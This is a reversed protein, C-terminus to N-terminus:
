FLYSLLGNRHLEYEPSSYKWVYKKLGNYINGKSAVATVRNPGTDENLIRSSFVEGSEGRNALKLYSEAISEFGKVVGTLADNWSVATSQPSTLDSSPGGEALM